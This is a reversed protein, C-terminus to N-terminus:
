NSARYEIHQFLPLPPLLLVQVEPFSSSYIHCNMTVTMNQSVQQPQSLAYQPNTYHIVANIGPEIEVLLFDNFPKVLKIPLHLSPYALKRKGPVVTVPFHTKTERTSFVTQSPQSKKQLLSLFLSQKENFIGRLISWRCRLPQGCEGCLNVM